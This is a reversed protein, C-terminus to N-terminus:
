MVAITLIASPLLSMGLSGFGMGVVALKRRGVAEVVPTLEAM